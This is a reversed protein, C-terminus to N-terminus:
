QIEIRRNEMEDGARIQLIYIGKAVNGLTLQKSYLGAVKVPEEAQVLQGTLDYIKIQIQQVQNANFSIIFSGTSPNPVIALNNFGQIEEIGTTCTVTVSATEPNGCDGADTITVTYQGTASVSVSAATSSFGNPGSWSYGTGSPAATITVNGGSCSISPNPPSISAQTTSSVTITSLATVSCSVNSGNSATVTYTSTSTPSVTIQATSAGTSWSYTSASPATLIQSGGDCISASTPNISGTPTQTVNVNMSSTASCGNNDTGTVSVTETSSVNSVTVSSGTTSSLGASANWIYSVGGNGTLQTSSNTGSSCLYVNGGPNIFIAPPQPATVTVCGQASQCGNPSYTLCYSGAGYTAINETLTQTNGLYTTTNFYWEYPAGTVNANLTFTGNPCVANPSASPNPAQAPQVVTVTTSLCTSNGCSGESRAYYTTTQSPIINSVNAGTGVQSGGCSNEYWVWSAGNPLSPGTLQLTVSGGGGACYTQPSSSVSNPPSPQANVTVCVTNSRVEYTSNCNTILCYYCNGNDATTLAPTTYSSGSAGQIQTGSSTYWFYLFPGTGNPSLTFTATNGACVTQNQPQTGMTVATCTSGTLNNFATTNGNFVDLDVSGSIGSVTGTWSYQKFLWTSWIGTTAPPTGSNGDPDAMWLGYATVGSGLYSAISGNTYVIPAVGGDHQQVYSCWAVVWATLEASTFYTTLGETNVICTGAPDELDLVPPLYGTGIYASATSLFYQAEATATNDEPLAFHYAGVKDATGHGNAINTYFDGDTYCTGKTAKIFSFSGNASSAVSSWTITGQGSYVDTGLITQSLVRDGLVICALLLLLHKTM